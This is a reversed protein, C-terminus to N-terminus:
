FEYVYVPTQLLDSAHEVRTPTWGPMAFAVSLLVGDRPLESEFKKRLARMFDGSLYTVYAGSELPVTLADIRQHTVGLDSAWSLLRGIAHPVVSLEVAVVDEFRGTRALRRTLGGWGSGLDTVRTIGEYQELIHTVVRRTSRSSPMPVIGSRRIGLAILGVSVLTIALLAYALM